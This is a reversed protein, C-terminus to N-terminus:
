DQVAMSYRSRNRKAAEAQGDIVANKFDGATVRACDNPHLLDVPAIGDVFVKGSLNHIYTFDGKGDGLCVEDLSVAFPNSGVAGASAVEYWFDDMGSLVAFYYDLADVALLVGNKAVHYAHHKGRGGAHLKLRLLERAVKLAAYKTGREWALKKLEEQRRKRLRYVWVGAALAITATVVAVVGMALDLREM